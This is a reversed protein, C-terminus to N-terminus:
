RPNCLLTSEPSVNSFGSVEDLPAHKETPPPLAYANTAQGLRKVMSWAKRELRLATKYDYDANNLSHYEIYELCASMTRYVGVHHHCVYGLGSGM